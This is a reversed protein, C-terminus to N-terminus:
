INMPGNGFGLFENLAVCDAAKNGDCTEREPCNYCPSLEEDFLEADDM